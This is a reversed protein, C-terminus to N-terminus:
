IGRTRTLIYMPLIKSCYSLKYFLFMRSSLPCGELTHRVPDLIILSLKWAAIAIVLDYTSTTVFGKHIGDVNAYICTTNDM